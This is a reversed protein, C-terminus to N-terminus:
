GTEDPLMVSVRRSNMLAATATVTHQVTADLNEAAAFSRSLDFLISMARAQQGRVANAADALQKASILQEAGLKRDQIERELRENAARLEATREQVITVLRKGTTKLNRIRPEWLM